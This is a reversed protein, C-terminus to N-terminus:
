IEIDSINNVHVELSLYYVYCMVFVRPILGSQITSLVKKWKGDKRM